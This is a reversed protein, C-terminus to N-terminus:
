ASSPMRSLTADRPSPSTYLLCPTYRSIIFLLEEGLILSNRVLNYTDLMDIWGTIGFLEMDEFLFIRQIFDGIPHENRPKGHHLTAMTVKFTGPQFIVDERAQAGQITSLDDFINISDRICM